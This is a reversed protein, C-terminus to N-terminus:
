FDTFDPDDNMPIIDEPSLQIGSGNGSSITRRSRSQNITPHVVARKSQRNLKFRQVMASLEQAQSAMEEAASSSEESNAANQQTVKDMEAVANNVQDIGRSQEQSATTIEGIIGSISEIGSLISELKDNVEESVNEGNEALKVSENILSETKNAAEKSRLALNRVEEAVVAFGRGAEGARAAEVAANLALLNTQFAIENIDKIIAATGEASAKIKGMAEKMEGMAKSGEDSTKLAEGSMKKAQESNEANQRTMSAMEELSSSTEELSSAQESAGEAVSQSSSAIQGGASTIQEVAEAVQIMANHQAEMGNNLNEAIALYDGKYDGTAKATLDNKAMSKAVNIIDTLVTKRETIDLVYELAGIVNGHDDMIPTGTYDIPISMGNVKAVTEGAADSKQSMAQKCRCEATNCHETKFFDYCKTGKVDDPKKGGVSAGAPNMYQITYDTDIVMVPTPVADLYGVKLNADNIAKKTASIDIVYELAGTIEGKQNKVPAGTYMIPLNLGTPDAVTEGTLISNTQMAQQCRCESTHCHSTKFLDYCKKGMVTETTLGVLGAGAPNMYVVNFDRDIEMIPTPINNLNDIAKLGDDHGDSPILMGIAGVSQNKDNMIPSAKFTFESESHGQGVMFNALSEEQESISAEKLPNSGNLGLPHDPRKGKVQDESYGTLKEMAQNWMTVRLQKDVALAPIPMSTLMQLHKNNGFLGM